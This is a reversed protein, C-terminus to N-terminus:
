YVNFQSIFWRGGSPWLSVYIQFRYSNGKVMYYGGGTAYRITGRLNMTTFKFGSFKRLSLFDQLILKAQTASYVGTENGTVTLSVQKVLYGSFLGVDSSNIGEQIESFIAQVAKADTDSTHKGPTSPQSWAGTVMGLLLVATTISINKNGVSRM